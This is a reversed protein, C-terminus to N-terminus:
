APLPRQPVGDCGPAPPTRLAFLRNTGAPAFLCPLCGGLDCLFEANARGRKVAGLTLKPLLDPADRAVIKQVSTPGAFTFTLGGPRMTAGLAMAVRGQDKYAGQAPEGSKRRDIRRHCGRRRRPQRGHHPLRPARGEDVWRDRGIPGHARGASTTGASRFHSGGPPARVRVGTGPRRHVDSRPVAPDSRAQPRREVSLKRRRLEHPAALAPDTLQHDHGRTSLLRRLRDDSRAALRLVFMPRHGPRRVRAGLGAPRSREAGWGASRLPGSSGVNNRSRGVEDAVTARGGVM